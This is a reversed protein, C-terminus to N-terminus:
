NYRDGIREFPSGAVRFQSIAVFCASNHRAILYGIIAFASLFRFRRVITKETVHM